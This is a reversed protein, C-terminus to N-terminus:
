VQISTQLEVEQECGAAEVEQTSGKQMPARDHTKQM